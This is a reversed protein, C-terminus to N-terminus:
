WYPEIYSDGEPDIAERVTMREPKYVKRRQRMSDDWGDRISCLRAYQEETLCFGHSIGDDETIIFRDM